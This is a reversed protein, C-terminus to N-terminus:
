RLMQVRLGLFTMEKCPTKVFIDQLYFKPWLGHVCRNPFNANQIDVLEKQSSLMGYIFIM